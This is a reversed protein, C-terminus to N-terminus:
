RYPAASTEVKWRHRSNLFSYMDTCIWLWPAINPLYIRNNPLQFLTVIWEHHDWWSMIELLGLQSKLKSPETGTGPLTMVTPRCMVTSHHLFKCCEEEEETNLAPKMYFSSWWVTTLHASRDGLKGLVASVFRHENARKRLKMEDTM